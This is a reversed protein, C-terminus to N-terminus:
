GVPSLLISVVPETFTAPNNPDHADANLQYIETLHYQQGDVGQIMGTWRAHYSANTVIQVRDVHGEAILNPSSLFACFKAGDVINFFGFSNITSELGADAPSTAHYVSVTLDSGQLRRIFQDIDSPTRIRIVTVLNLPDRNATCFNSPLHASLLHRQPDFTLIFSVQNQLTDIQAGMAMSPAPALDATRDPSIPSENCAALSTLLVLCAAPIWSHRDM